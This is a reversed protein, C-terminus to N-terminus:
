QFYVTVNNEFFFFLTLCNYLTPVNHIGDTQTATETARVQKKKRTCVCPAWTCVVATLTFTSHYFEINSQNNNKKKDYCFTVLFVCRSISRFFFVFVVGFMRNRVRCHACAAIWGNRFVFKITWCNTIKISAFKYRIENPHKTHPQAKYHYFLMRMLNSIIM